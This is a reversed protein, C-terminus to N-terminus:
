QERQTLLLRINYDRAIARIESVTPLGRMVRLVKNDQSLLVSHPLAGDGLRSKVLDLVALTQMLDRKLITYEPKYREVYADLKQQSDQLDIPIAVIDLRDGFHKNLWAVEDIKTKCKECWTAMSVVLRLRSHSPALKLDVPKLNALATSEVIPMPVSRYPTIVSSTGDPSMSEDEYFTLMAGTKVKQADHRIGSPFTASISDAFDYSGLGIIKIRSDQTALGEGCRFEAVSRKRGCTTLIRTGIADRNSLRQNPKSACNGGVVRVAVFNGKTKSAVATQNHYINLTANNTNSVLFDQFGDRDMDIKAVCRSDSQSDLGSLGSADVFTGSATKAFYSNSESGSLSLRAKRGDPLKYRDVEGGSKGTIEETEWLKSDKYDRKLSKDSRM